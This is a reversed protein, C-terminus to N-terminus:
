AAKTQALISDATAQTGSPQAVACIAGLLLIASVTKTMVADGGM